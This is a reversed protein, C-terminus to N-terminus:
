PNIRSVFMIARPDKFLGLPKVNIYNNLTLYQKKM